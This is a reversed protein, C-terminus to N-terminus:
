RFNLDVFPLKGSEASKQIEGFKIFRPFRGYPTNFFYYIRIFKDESFDGSLRLFHIRSDPFVPLGVIGRFLYYTENNIKFITKAPIQHEWEELGQSTIRTWQKNSIFKTPIFLGYHVQESDFGIWIKKNVVSIDLVPEIHVQKIRKGKIYDLHLVFKPIRFVYIVLLAVTGSAVINTLFGEWNRLIFGSTAVLLDNM